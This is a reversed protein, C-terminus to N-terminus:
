RTIENPGFAASAQQACSLSDVIRLDNVNRRGQSLGYGGIANHRPLPTAAGPLLVTQTMPSAEGYIKKCCCLPNTTQDLLADATSHLCHVCSGLNLPRPSSAGPLTQGQRSLTNM